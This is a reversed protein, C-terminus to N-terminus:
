GVLPSVVVGHSSVTSYMCSSLPVCLSRYVYVPGYQYFNLKFNTLNKAPDYTKAPAEKVIIIIIITLYLLPMKIYVLPPWATAINFLAIQFVKWFLAM